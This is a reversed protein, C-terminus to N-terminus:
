AFSRGSNRQMLAARSVAREAAKVADELFYAAESREETGGAGGMAGRVLPLYTKYINEHEDYLDYSRLRARLREARKILAVLQEDSDGSARQALPLVPGTSAPARMPAPPPPPPPLPNPSPPPTKQLRRRPASQPPGDDDGGFLSDLEKDNDAERAPAAPAPASASAARPQLQERCKALEDQLARKEQSHEKFKKIVEIRLRELAERKIRLKRELEAILRGADPANAGDVISVENPDVEVETYPVEQLDADARSRKPADTAFIEDVM